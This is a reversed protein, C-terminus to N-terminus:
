GSGFLFDPLIEKHFASPVQLICLQRKFGELRPSDKVVRAGGVGQWM